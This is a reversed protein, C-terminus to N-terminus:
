RKREEVSIWKLIEEPLVPKKLFVMMCLDGNSSTHESDRLYSSLIITKVGCSALKLLDPDDGLIEGSEEEMDLIVVAPKKKLSYKVARGTDFFSKVNYGNLRLMEELEKLFERDKDAIIISKNTETFWSFINKRM